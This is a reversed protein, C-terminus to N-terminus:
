AGPGGLFLRDVDDLQEAPARTLAARSLADLDEISFADADDARYLASTSAAPPRLADPNAGLIAALGNLLRRSLRREDLEDNELRQLYDATRATDGLDFLATLRRSVEDLALGAHARLKPM